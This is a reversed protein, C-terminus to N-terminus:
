LRHDDAGPEETWWAGLGHRMEMRVPCTGGNYSIYEELLDRVVNVDGSGKIKGNTRMESYLRDIYEGVRITQAAEKRRLSTMAPQHIRRTAGAYVGEGGENVRSVEERIIRRLQNLTIKM